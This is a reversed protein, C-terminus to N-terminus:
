SGQNNSQDAPGQSASNKEDAKSKEEEVIKSVAAQEEKIKENEKKIASSAIHRKAYLDMLSFTVMSAAIIGIVNILFMVLSGTIIAVDLKAIGVGVVALPPILAVSIAIGPFTEDWEPKALAFSVAMGAVVAVFLYLLSPDTRSLIENGPSVGQAFMVAVLVSIGLGVTISKAITYTARSLVKYDSMVMGLSFSLIPYLVPAILMSGIVISASDAVLGLTAMAISLAVMYFYDFDPTSSEILRRVAHAKGNEDIARFRAFIM